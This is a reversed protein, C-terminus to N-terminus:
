SGPERAIGLCEEFFRDWARKLFGDGLEWASKLFGDGLEWSEEFIRKRIGLRWFVRRKEFRFWDQQRASQFKKDGCGGKQCRHNFKRALGFKTKRWLSFVHFPCVCRFKEVACGTGNQTRTYKEAGALRRGEEFYLGHPQRAHSFQEDECGRGNWRENQKKAM